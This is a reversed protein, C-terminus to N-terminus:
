KGSPDEQRHKSPRVRAGKAKQKLREYLQQSIPIGPAPAAFSEGAAVPAEDSAARRPDITKGADASGPLPEHKWKDGPSKSGSKSRPSRM